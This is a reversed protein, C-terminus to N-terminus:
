RYRNTYRKEHMMDDDYDHYRMNGRREHMYEDDDYDHRKSMREGYSENVLKELCLMLKGGATLMEETLASMKAIKSDTIEIIKM